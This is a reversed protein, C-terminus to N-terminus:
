ALGAQMVSSIFDRGLAIVATAVAVWLMWKRNDARELQKKMTELEAQDAKREIQDTKREAAYVDARVSEARLMHLEGVVQRQYGEMVDGLHKLQLAIVENSVYGVPSHTPPTTFQPTTM